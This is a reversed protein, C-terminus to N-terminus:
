MEETFIRLFTKQGDSWRYCRDEGPIPQVKYKIGEGDTISHGKNPEIPDGNGDVLDSARVLWDWNKSSVNFGADFAAKSIRHKSRVAVLEVSASGTAYAATVGLMSLLQDIHVTLADGLIM